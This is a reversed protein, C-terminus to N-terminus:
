SLVPVVNKEIFQNPKWGGAVKDLVFTDFSGLAIGALTGVGGAFALDAAIGAGTFVAWRVSKGPLKELISKESVARHYEGLLNADFPKGAIWGKFKGAKEILPILEAVTVRGSNVSERLSRGDPFVVSQFQSIKEASRVRSNVMYSVRESIIESGILNTALESSYSASFYIDCEADMLFNLFYAPTMIYDASKYRSKFLLNLRYFDLNSEVIYCGDKQRLEFEVNSCGYEPVLGKLVRKVAINVYDGNSFAGRVGEVIGGDYNVVQIDKELRRALRRGKGDKGVAESCVKKLVDQFVHNPSSFYIPSHLQEGDRTDTAIASWNELYSVKLLGESVLRQFNDIGLGVVLPEITSRDAVVRTNGYFLLSELISGIDVPAGLPGAAQRRFLISEFM